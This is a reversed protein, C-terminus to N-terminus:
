YPSLSMSSSTYMSSSSETYDVSVQKGGQYFTGDQMQRLLTRLMACVMTMSPRDSTRFSWGSALLKGVWSSQFSKSEKHLVTRRRKVNGDLEKLTWLEYLISLFSFVDVKTDYSDAWRLEPALYKHPDDSFSTGISGSGSVSINGTTSNRGASMGIASKSSRPAEKKWTFDNVFENEGEGLRKAMSCDFLQVNSGYEKTFGFNAPTVDRLVIRQSHIHELATAMDFAVQMRDTLGPDKVLNSFMGRRQAASHTGRCKRWLNSLKRKVPQTRWRRMRDELTEVMFDMMLFYSDHRGSVYYADSGLSAVGRVSAINDHRLSQLIQIENDLASAATEFNPALWFAGKLFKICYRPEGNTRLANKAISDRIWQSCMDASYNSKFTSADGEKKQRKKNNILHIAKVVHVQCYTGSGVCNGVVIERRDFLGTSQLGGTCSRNSRISLSMSRESRDLRDSRDGNHHMDDMVPRSHNSTSLKLM